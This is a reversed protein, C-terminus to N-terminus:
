WGFRMLVMCAFVTLFGGQELMLMKIGRQFAAPRDAPAATQARRMTPDLVFRSWLFVGIALTLAVIVTIGYPSPFAAADLRGNVLALLAGAGITVIAAPPYLKHGVSHIAPAIESQATPSTLQLAPGLLLVGTLAGGFWVIAATVHIAYLAIIFWPLITSVITIFQTWTPSGLRVFNRIFRAFSNRALHANFLLVECLDLLNNYSDIAEFANLAATVRAIRIFTGIIHL